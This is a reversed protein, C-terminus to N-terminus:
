PAEPLPQAPQEALRSRDLLKERHRVQRGFHLDLSVPLIEQEKQDSVFTAQFWFLAQAFHLARVQSLQFELGPGLKLSKRVRGSLDHPELNLGLLYLRAFRGRELADALFREVLPTGYSALQSDPHEPVAEPDFTVRLEEGEWLGRGHRVPLLLDYVQPEVEDWAGGITEVYDRVFEELATRTVPEKGAAADMDARRPLGTRSSGSMSPENSCTPM